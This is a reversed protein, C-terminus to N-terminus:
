KLTIFFSEKNRMRRNLFSAARRTSYFFFFITCKEHKVWKNVSFIQVDINILNNKVCLSFSSATCKMKMISICNKGTTM